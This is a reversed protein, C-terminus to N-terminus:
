RGLSRLRMTHPLRVHGEPDDNLMTHVIGTFSRMAWYIWFEIQPVQYHNRRDSHTSLCDVAIGKVLSEHDGQEPADEYVSALTKLNDRFTTLAAQQRQWDVVIQSVEFPKLGSNEWEPIAVTQYYDRKRTAPLRSAIPKVNAATM